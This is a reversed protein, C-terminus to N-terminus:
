GSLEEAALDVTASQRLGNAATSVSRKAQGSAGEAVSSVTAHPPVERPQAEDAAKSSQVDSARSARPPGFPTQKTHLWPAFLPPATKDKYDRTTQKHARTPAPVNSNAVNDVFSERAFGGLLGPQPQSAKGARLQAIGAAQAKPQLHVGSLSRGKAPDPFLSGSSERERPASIQASACAGMQGSAVAEENPFARAAANFLAARDSDVAAGQKGLQRFGDKGSDAKRRNRSVGSGERQVVSTDFIDAAQRFKEHQNPKKEQAAGAIGAAVTEAKCEQQGKLWTLNKPHCM